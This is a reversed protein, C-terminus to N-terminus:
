GRNVEKKDLEITFRAGHGTNEAYISGNMNNEIIVKAMYLGIGTGQSKFKTTFYPEYIRDIINEPIGGGNDSIQVIVKGDENGFDIDISGNENPEMLGKKRSEVIADKANSIIILIVQKFENRYIRAVLECCAGLSLDTYIDGHIKCNLACFINNFKLQALVISMAECVVDIVNCEEKERDPKFFDRFDDITKSMFQIQENSKKISDYFYDKNLEGYEYADQMDVSIMSLASLPQRWQHAIVSIMEGMSSLKSQQILLKEQERQKKIEEQVRKDLTRNLELVADETRKRQAVENQLMLVMSNLEDTRKQVLEGMENFSKSLEGIEDQLNLPTAKLQGTAGYHRVNKTLENIPLTITRVVLYAGSLGLILFIVGMTISKYILETQERRLDNKGMSIHVYGIHVYGAAVNNQLPIADGIVETDSKSYDFSAAVPAWFEFTDKTEYNSSSMETQLKTLLEKIDPGQSKYGQVNNEGMNVFKKILLKGKSDFISVFFVNKRKSIAEISTSLLRESESFVGIRSNHALLEVLLTGERVLKDKLSDMQNYIFFVFLTTCLFVIFFTSLVFIKVSMKERYLKILLAM